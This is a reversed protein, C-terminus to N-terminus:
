LKLFSTQLSMRLTDEHLDLSIEPYISVHLTCAALSFELSIDFKEDLELNKRCSALLPSCHITVNGTHIM